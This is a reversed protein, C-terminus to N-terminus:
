SNTSLASTPQWDLVTQFSSTRSSYDSLSISALRLIDTPVTSSFTNAVLISNDLSYSPSISRSSYIYYLTCARGLDSAVGSYPALGSDFTMHNHGSLHATLALSM